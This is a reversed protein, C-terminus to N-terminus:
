VHFKLLGLLIFITFWYGKLINTSIYCVLDRTEIFSLLEMICSM